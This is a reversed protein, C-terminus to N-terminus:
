LRNLMSIYIPFESGIKTELPDLNQYSPTKYLFMVYQHVPVKSRPQAAGNTLHDDRQLRDSRERSCR